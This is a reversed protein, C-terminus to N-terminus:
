FSVLEPYTTESGQVSVGEAVYKMVEAPVISENTVSHRGNLLLMKIWNTLDRASTIIGGAGAWINEEGPRLFYPITATLKGDVDAIIDRMSRHFGDAFNGSAEAEAISYTSASMNLPQFLHESIYSEFSQNLLTSPLHSLTEYM